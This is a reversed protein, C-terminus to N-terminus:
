QMLDGSSILVFVFVVVDLHKIRPVLEELWMKIITNLKSFVLEIFTRRLMPLKGINRLVTLMPWVSDSTRWKPSNLNLNFHIGNSIALTFTTYLGLSFIKFWMTKEVTEFIRQYDKEFWSAIIKKKTNQSRFSM